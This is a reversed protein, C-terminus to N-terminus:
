LSFGGAKGPSVNGWCSWFARVRDSRRQRFIFACEQSTFCWESIAMMDDMPRIEEVDIGIRRGSCLAVLVLGGAHAINFELATGSDGNELFPKGFHNQYFRIADRSCHLYRSLVDRLVAHAFVYALRHQPFRFREARAREQTSLTAEVAPLLTSEQRASWIHVQEPPLIPM